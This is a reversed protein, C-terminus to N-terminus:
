NDDFPWRLRILCAPRPLRASSNEMEVVTRHIRLGNYAAVNATQSNTLVFAVCRRPLLLIKRPSFKRFRALSPPSPFQFSNYFGDAGGQGVSM